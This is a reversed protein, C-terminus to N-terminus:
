VDRKANETVLKGAESVYKRVTDVDLSLGVHAIDDAIEKTATNKGASPNYSYGRVAMASIITLLSQREKTSLAKSERNEAQTADLRAKMQQLEHIVASIGEDKGSISAALPGDIFLETL